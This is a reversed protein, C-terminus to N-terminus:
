LAAPRKGSGSGTAKFSGNRVWEMIEFGLRRELREDVHVESAAPAPADFSSSSPPAAPGPVRLVVVAPNVFEVCNSGRGEDLKVYITLDPGVIGRWLTAVWKWHDETQYADKMPLTTAYRDSQTLSYGTGLVAVPLKNNILTTVPAPSPETKTAATTTGNVLEDSTDHWKLMQVLYNAMPNGPSQGNNDQASPTEGVKSGDKKLETSSSNLSKSDGHIGDVSPGNWTRVVCEGSISLAKEVVAAVEKLLGLADTAGEIAIIPGRAELPSSGSAPPRLPPSIARLMNLKYMYNHTWRPPPPTSSHTQPHRPQQQQAAQQSQRAVQQQQQQQQTPQQPMGNQIIGLGAMTGPYASGAATEPASNMNPSNPLQTQLPPLRLSEDFGGSSRSPTQAQGQHSISPRPPPQMEVMGNNSRYPTQPVGGGVGSSPPRPLRNAGGTNGQYPGQPGFGGSFSPRPNLQGHGTQQPYRPDGAGPYPAWGMPPSGPMYGGGGNVRRRKIMSEPHTPSAMSMMAYDEEIDRLHPQTYRRGHSDVSMMSASSGRRMLHDTEIVRPNHTMYAPMHGPPAGAMSSTHASLPLPPPPAAAAFPTSPTRPTAIYRGGCKNCRSPDEGAATTKHVASNNSNNQNQHKGGRRPQYRYDPYQRQHRVKEEEALRKWSNKVEEPQERWQEGILKSIDPNALGPNKAAVIAQYHQRYLIFANRPRPVKPAKTCLCILDRPGGGIDLPTALSSRGSAPTYLGVDQLRPHKNAEHIDISAARKRIGPKATATSFPSAPGEENNNHHHHHDEDVTTPRRSIIDNHFDNSPTSSYHTLYSPHPPASAPAPIHLPPPTPRQQQQQQKQQPSNEEYRNQQQPQPPPLLLPPHPPFGFGNRSTAMAPQSMPRTLSSPDGGSSSLGDDNNSSSTFPGPSPQLGHPHHPQPDITSTTTVISSHTSNNGAIDAM